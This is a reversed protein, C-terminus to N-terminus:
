AAAACEGESFAFDTAQKLREAIHAMSGVHGWDVNEFDVNFTAPSLKSLRALLTDIEAKRATFAEQATHM